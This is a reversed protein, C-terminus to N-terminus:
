KSLFLKQILNHATKNFPPLIYRVSYIKSRELVAKMNSYTEFGEKAHYRGMGSPGVGGFPLDDVGVHTVVDNIGTAGSHTHTVVYEARSEDYDFYYLALPRPRANVFELAQSLSEVEMVPLIPGFIENQMILMDPTVGLVLTPPIKRTNEFRENAPNIEIVRAGQARADDLYSQIRTYQKDNVISTYDANTLLSPYMKSIQATIAIVFADTKGRPMLLYDPAVCTQGANWCKGFAIREAADAIPYSEHVIAPSKGGLELLVPTLNSAANQMITRGVNTSGTFTIQDFPLHSFAESVEGKGTIVAVCDESFAEALMRKLTEGLRPTFSSSKIMVRNGASLAGVLPGLALFIPYNWPVVVGVVGLPQPVVRASAPTALLGSHRRQPKMWGVLNKSSYKVAELSTLVEAIKTETKSRHGFDQSVADCLDDQFKLIADKLRRLNALRENSSPMPRLAYAAQQSQFIRQMDAVQPNQAALQSIYAVM